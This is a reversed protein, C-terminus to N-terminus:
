ASAPVDPTAMTDPTVGLASWLNGVSFGDFPALEPNDWRLSRVQGVAIDTRSRMHVVVDVEFAVDTEARIKWTKDTTPRGQRDMVTVEDMRATLLVPGPFLRVTQMFKRWNAKAHNWLDMSIPADVGPKGRAQARSDAVAQAEDCLGQWVHSICDVVLLHTGPTTRAHDAAAAIVATVGAPTDDHGVISMTPGAIAGLEDADDEGFPVWLTSALFAYTSAKACAFSKGSKPKGALLVVPWRPTKTPARLSLPAATRQQPVMAQVKEGM